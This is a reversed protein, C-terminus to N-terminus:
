ALELFHSCLISEAFKPLMEYSGSDGKVICKLVVGLILDLKSQVFGFADILFLRKFREDELFCLWFFGSITLVELIKKCLECIIPLLPNLARLSRFFGLCSANVGDGIPKHKPTRSPFFRVYQLNVVNPNLAILLHLAFVDCLM